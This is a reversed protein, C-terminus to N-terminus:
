FQVGMGALFAAGSADVDATTALQYRAEAYLGFHTWRFALGGVAQAAIGTANGELQGSMGVSALGLGAGLFPQVVSGPRFYKKTTVVVTVVQMDGQGLPVSPVTTYEHSRVMVEGGFSWGSTGVWEAELGFVPASQSFSTQFIVPIGGADAEIDQSTSALSFSGGKFILSFASRAAAPEPAAAPKPAPKAKPKPRPKPTAVTPTAPPTERVLRSRHLDRRGAGYSVQEIASQGDASVSLRVFYVRGSQINLFFPAAAGARISLRGPSVSWYYFTDRALGSLPRSGIQLTPSLPPGDDSVRYLYVLARGAPPVAQKAQRDADGGAFPAAAPVAPTALLLLAALTLYKGPTM